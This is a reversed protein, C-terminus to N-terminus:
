KNTEKFESIEDVCEEIEIIENIIKKIKITAIIKDGYIRGGSCFHFLIKYEGVLYNELNKLTIKYSKEENPEQQSLIIDDIHIDSSDDVLLKSDQAWTKTGINRLKIEFEAEETGQYIDLVLSLM